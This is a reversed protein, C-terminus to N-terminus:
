EIPQSSRRYNDFLQKINRISMIQGTQPNLNVEIIHEYFMMGENSKTGSYLTIQWLNQICIIVIKPNEYKDLEKNGIANIATDVAEDIDINWTSPNIELGTELKPIPPGGSFYYINNNKMSILVEAQGIPESEEDYALFWAHIRGRKSEIEEKGEFSITIGSLFADKHWEKARVVAFPIADKVTTITTHLPRETKDTIEKLRNSSCGMQVAIFLLFILFTSTARKFHM